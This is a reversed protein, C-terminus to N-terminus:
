GDAVSLRAGCCRCRRTACGVTGHSSPSAPELVATDYPARESYSCCPMPSRIPWCRRASPSPSTSAWRSSPRATPAPSCTVATPRSPPPSRGRRVCSLVHDVDTAIPMLLRYPRSALQGALAHRLHSVEVKLTSFTVAHDGYLM